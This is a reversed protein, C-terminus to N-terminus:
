YPKVDITTETLPRNDEDDKMITLTNWYSMDANLPTSSSWGSQKILSAHKTDLNLQINHPYTSGAWIDFELSYKIAFYGYYTGSSSALNQPSGYWGSQTIHARFREPYGSASVWQKTSINSEVQTKLITRADDSDLPISEGTAYNKLIIDNYDETGYWTNIRALLRNDLWPRERGTYEISAKSVDYRSSQITCYPGVWYGNGSDTPVVTPENVRGSGASDAFTVVYDTPNTGNVWLKQFTFTIPFESKIRTFTNSQITTGNGLGLNIQLAGSDDNTVSITQPFPSAIGPVSINGTM